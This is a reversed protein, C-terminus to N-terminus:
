PHAGRDAKGGEAGLRVTGADRALRVGHEQAAGQQQEHADEAERQCRGTEALLHKHAAPLWLPDGAGGGAVRLNLQDAHRAIPDRVMLIASLEVFRGTGPKTIDTTLEAAWSRSQTTNECGRSPLM